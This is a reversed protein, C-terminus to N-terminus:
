KDVFAEGPRPIDKNSAIKIPKQIKYFEVKFEVPGTIVVHHLREPEIVIPHETDASLVDDPTDEWVFDLSGSEVVVYGYKGKPSMHKNLIPKLVTDQNMVPTEGVKVAGKPLEIDQFKM